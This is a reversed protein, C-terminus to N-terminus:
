REDQKIVDNETMHSAEETRQLVGHLLISCLTETYRTPDDAFGAESMHRLLDASQFFFVNAGVLLTAVVAQDVDNRLEGRTQGERLIGVLRTFNEGLVGEALERGRRPGNEVLERLILRAVRRHEYLHAMHAQIFHCLRGELGGVAQVMDDLLRSSEHCACKLVSLYLEHKTKFHHFINAKSVSAREAIASMSVADYGQESFLEEAADLIRSHADTPSPAVPILNAIKRPM